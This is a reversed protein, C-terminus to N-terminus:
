RESLAEKQQQFWAKLYKRFAEADKKKEFISGSCGDAVLPIYIFHWMHYEEVSISASMEDLLAMLQKKMEAENM